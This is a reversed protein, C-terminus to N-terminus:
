ILLSLLGCLRLGAAFRVAVSTQGPLSSWLRAPTVDEPNWPKEVTWALDRHVPDVRLRAGSSPHRFVSPPDTLGLEPYTSAPVLGWRAAEKVLLYRVLHVAAARAVDTLTDRLEAASSEPAVCSPLSLWPSTVRVFGTEDLVVALLTDGAGSSCVQLDASAWGLQRVVLPLATKRSM